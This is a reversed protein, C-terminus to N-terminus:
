SNLWSNIDEDVSSIITNKTLLVQGYDIEEDALGRDDLFIRRDLKILEKELCDFQEEDITDIVSACEIDKERKTPLHYDDFLCLKNFNDKLLEWDVRTGIETHDGDIYVFDFKGNTALCGPLVNASTGSVLEIKSLWERPFLKSLSNLHEKDFNSDISVVKGPSNIEYLARAACIASYGRGFGIELFSQIQYHKILYYILIGREYNPRFFAGAKKYLPHNPDRRKKATFEGINDFDGLCIDDISVQLEKLKELIHIIKM